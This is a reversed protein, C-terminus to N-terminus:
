KRSKTVNLEEKQKLNRIIKEIGILKDKGIPLLSDLFIQRDKAIDEKTIYKKM